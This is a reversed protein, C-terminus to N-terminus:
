DLPKKTIAITCCEDGCAMCAQEEVLFTKGGSIWLLAEQLLGVTILCCPQPSQVGWCQACRDIHWYLTDPTEQLRVVQDTQNNFLDALARSGKELKMSLPLLQFALESVGMMPGYERIGHKFCMRGVRMAVGRGSRPGYLDLLARTLSGVVEFPFQRDSTGPPPANVYDPCGALSLLRVLPNHGLVDEISLLLIRGMRNPYFYRPSAEDAHSAADSPHDTV